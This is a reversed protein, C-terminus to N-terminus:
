AFVCPCCKECPHRNRPFLKPFGGCSAPFAPFEPVRTASVTPLNRAGCAGARATRAARPASRRMGARAPQQNAGWPPSVREPQRCPWARPGARAAQGAGGSFPRSAQRTRRALLAARRAPSVRRAWPEAAGGHALRARADRRKGDVWAATRRAPLPAGGLRYEANEPRGGPGPAHRHNRGGGARGARPRRSAPRGARRRADDRGGAWAAAGRRAADPDPRGAMARRAAPRARGAVPRAMQAVPRAWAM